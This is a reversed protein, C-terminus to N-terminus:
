RIKGLGYLFLLFLAISLANLVLGAVAIDVIIVKADAAVGTGYAINLAFVGAIIGLVWAGFMVPVLTPGTLHSGYFEERLVLWGLVLLVM